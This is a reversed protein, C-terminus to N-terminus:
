KVPKIIYIILGVKEIIKEAKVVAITKGYAKGGVTIAAIIAGLILSLITLEMNILVSIKISILASISGSIIGCIDGMLDNCFNTNKEKDKLLRISEKAGKQKKASKAHFPAEDCTAIAMGIMDFLIGLIVILILIFIAIYINLKEIIINSVGGFILALIFTILITNLIWKNNKM